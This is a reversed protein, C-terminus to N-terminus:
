SRKGKDTTKYAWIIWLLGLFIFPISLLQGTSFPIELTYHAQKTKFYEIFFRSLFLIFLFLGPLLKTAFNPTMKKYIFLLIFFLLTYAMAEYLQVPHRAIMDVRQFIVAWPLKSPVGVIESNFFNGFRVFIAVITGPLTLRSILWFFSLKHQLSFIYAALIVGLMGGHSALGGKGIYLIEIPHSLYYTPQYFFCHAVRAGILTGIMLYLVFSKVLTTDKEERKFIWVLLLQGIMFSSIFFLGYWHLKFAGFEIINPNINWIFSEVQHEM